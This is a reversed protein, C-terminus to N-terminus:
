APRAELRQRVRELVEATLHRVIPVALRGVTRDLLRSNLTYEITLTIDTGGPVPVLLYHGTNSIGSLSRWTICKPPECQIIAVDWEYTKGAVRVQWRYRANGLPVVAEVASTYQPFEEVNRIMTFVTQPDSPLMARTQISPM